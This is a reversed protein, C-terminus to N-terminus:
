INRKEIEGRSIEEIKRRNIERMYKEERDRM